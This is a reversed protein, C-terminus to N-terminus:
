SEWPPQETPYWKFIEIEDKFREEVKEIQSLSFPILQKDLSERIKMIGPFRNKLEHFMIIEPNCGDMFETISISFPKWNNDIYNDFFDDFTKIMQFMSYASRIRDYVNRAIILRQWSDFESDYESNIMHPTGVFKGYKKRLWDNVSHSGSRPIDLFVLRANLFAPM